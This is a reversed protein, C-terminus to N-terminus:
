NSPLYLTKVFNTGWSIKKNKPHAKPLSSFVGRKVGLLHNERCDTYSIWEDEIRAVKLYASAVPFNEMGQLLVVDQKEGLDEALLAKPCHDGTLVLHVQLKIPYARTQTPDKEDFVGAKWVLAPGEKGEAWTKTQSSWCQIGLYLVDKALLLSVPLFQTHTALNQPKLFSGEGGIPTRFSRWLEQSNDQPAFFYVIEALGGSARLKKNSDASSHYYFSHKNEVTQNGSNRLIPHTKEELKRIFRLQQRKFSDFDLIMQIEQTRDARTYLSELDEELLSLISTAKESLSKQSEAYRWTAMTDKLIRSLFLGLLALLSMAIMLEMLTLGMSRFHFHFYIKRM